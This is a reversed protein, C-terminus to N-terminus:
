PLSCTVGARANALGRGYFPRILCVTFSRAGETMGLAEETMGLAGETMGLAEETMGLAGETMGLAALSRSKNWGAVVLDM